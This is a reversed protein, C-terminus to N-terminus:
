KKELSRMVRAAMYKDEKATKIQEGLERYQKLKENIEINETSLFEDVFAGPMNVSGMDACAGGGVAVKHM